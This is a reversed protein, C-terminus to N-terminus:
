ETRLDELDQKTKLEKYIGHEELENVYEIWINEIINGLRLIFDTYNDKEFTTSMTLGNLQVEIILYNNDNQLPRININIENNYDYTKFSKKQYITDYFVNELIKNIVFNIATEKEIM